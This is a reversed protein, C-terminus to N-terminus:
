KQNALNEVVEVCPLKELEKPDILIKSSRNGGGMIVSTQKMVEADIYIPMSPPLGFPTVGGVLMGTQEMMQEATAFSARKVGLLKGVSKNTDLKTTALLVCCAFKIPDSKGAAIISNAAQEQSYGFHSCFVATDAHDPDCELVTYVLGSKRLFQEVAPHLSSTKDMRPMKADRLYVTGADQPCAYASEDRPVSSM